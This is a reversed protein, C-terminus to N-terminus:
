WGGGSPPLVKVPVDDVGDGYQMEGIVEGNPGEIKIVGSFDVKKSTDPNMVSGGLSAEGPSYKSPDIRSRYMSSGPSNRWEDIKEKKNAKETREIEKTKESEGQGLMRVVATRGGVFYKELMGGIHITANEIEKLSSLSDSGITSQRGLRAAVKFLEVKLEEGSKAKLAEEESSKLGKRKLYEDRIDSLESPKAFRIRSMDQLGDAGAKMIDVNNKKAYASLSGISTKGFEDYINNFGEFQRATINFVNSGSAYKLHPDAGKLDKNLQSIVKSINTEDSGEGFAKNETEFLGGEALYQQKFPGLVSGLARLMFFKGAEGAGPNVLSQQIRSLINEGMAGKLGPPADSENMSAYMSAFAAANPASVGVSETNHVYRTLAGMLDGTRTFIGSRGIAEAISIALRRQDGPKPTLGMFQYQAFNSNSQNEDLGFGRAFGVSEKISAHVMRYDEEGAAKAYHRSLKVSESYTLMLGKTLNRSSERIDDFSTSIAGMERKFFDIQQGEAEAKKEGELTKSALKSIGSVVTGIGALGLGFKLLGKAGPMKRGGPGVGGSWWSFKDGGGGGGTAGPVNHSEWRTSSAIASLAGARKAPQAGLMAKDYNVNWPMRGSQGSAKIRNSFSPSTKLLFDFNAKLSKIDGELNKLEPHSFDLKGFERGEQKAASIAQKVRNMGSVIHSVDFQVPIKVAM